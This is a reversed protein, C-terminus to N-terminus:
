RKLGPLSRHTTEHLRLRQKSELSTGGFGITAAKQYVANMENAGEAIAQTIDVSGLM